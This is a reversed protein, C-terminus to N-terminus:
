VIRVKTLITKPKNLRNNSLLLLQKLRSNASEFRIVSFFHLPLGFYDLKFPVHLLNHMKLHQQYREGFLCYVCKFYFDAHKILEKKLENVPITPDQSLYVLGLVTKIFILIQKEKIMSDDECNVFSLYNKFFEFYGRLVYVTEMSSMSIKNKKNIEDINICSDFTKESIISQITKSFGLKKAEVLIANSIYTGDLEKFLIKSYMISSYLSYSAIGENLDHFPDSILYNNYSLGRDFNYDRIKDDVTCTRCNNMGRALWNRKHGHLMQLFKNDGLIGIVKVKFTKEKYVVNLDTFNSLISRM